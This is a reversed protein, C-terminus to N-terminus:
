RDEYRKENKFWEIIRMKARFFHARVGSVKIHLVSAIEDATMGELVAMQLVARNQTPLAEIARHLQGSQEELRLLEETQEEDDPEINDNWAEWRMRRGKRLHDIAANVAMRNLRRAMDEPTNLLSMTNTLVHLLVEQVVEEAEAEEALVRFATAYLGAAYQDYFATQAARDRKRCGIVMQEYTFEKEMRSIYRLPPGIQQM